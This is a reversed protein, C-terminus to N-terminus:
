RAVHKTANGKADREIYIGKAPKAIRRGSIDFYTSRGTKAADSSIESVSSLTNDVYAKCANAVYGTTEDVLIAVVAFKTKDNLLSTGATSVVEDAKFSCTTSYPEYATLESPLESNASGAQSVYSAALLVDDFYLGKIPNGAECLEQLETGNYTSAYSPYYNSQEWDDGYMDDGVLCYEVHYRESSSHSDVFTTTATVNVTNGDDAVVGKVEIDAAALEERLSLWDTEIGFGSSSTGYYPDVDLKRELYASPFGAISSPYESSSVVEIEDSNHISICIFDDPYLGNMKEMAFFGRPCWGCWFGTYEEMLPRHTPLMQYVRLLSSSTLSAEANDVGNVKTLSFSVNYDGPESIAPLTVDFDGSAGYRTPLPTAFDTHGTYTQGNLEYKYDVNSVESSGHNKVSVTTTCAKDKEANIKAKASIGAVDKEVGGVIVKLALSGGVNSARSDWKRYTRSTHIYLGEDDSNLTLYIPYQNFDEDLNDVTLSYGAYFDGDTVTYPEDFRVEIEGKAVTATKSTIDPANKSSSLKLEKTLWVSLDSFGNATPLSLVIGEVTKGVLAADNIHIAVDYNEKKTTGWYGTSSNGDDYTYYFEGSNLSTTSAARAAAKFQASVGMSALVAAATFFM